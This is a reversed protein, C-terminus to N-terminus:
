ELELERLEERVEECDEIDRDDEECDDAVLDCDFTINGISIIPSGPNISDTSKGTVLLALAVVM